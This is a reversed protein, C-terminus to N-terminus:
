VSGVAGVILPNMDPCKAAVLLSGARVPHFRRLVHRSAIADNDSDLVLNLITM